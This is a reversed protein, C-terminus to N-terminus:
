MTFTSRKKPFNLEHEHFHKQIRHFRKVDVLLTAKSTM